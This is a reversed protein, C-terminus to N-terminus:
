VDKGTQGVATSARYVGCNGATLLKTYFEGAQGAGLPSLCAMKSRYLTWASGSSPRGKMLRSVKGVRGAPTRLVIRGHIKPKLSPLSTRWSSM